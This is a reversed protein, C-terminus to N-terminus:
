TQQLIVVIGAGIAAVVVLFLTWENWLGRGV